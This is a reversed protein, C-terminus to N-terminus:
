IKGVRNKTRASLLGLKKSPVIGSDKLEKLAYLCLLIPGKDDVIGRGYYYGDKVTLQFPNVTWGVTGAPVIDLHGLIGVEEGDGFVVEGAYGDYNITEFGFSNALSLFFNLANNIQEGFPMGEGKENEVSNFSLLTSLSKLFHQNMFVKNCSFNLIKGNIIYKTDSIKNYKLM